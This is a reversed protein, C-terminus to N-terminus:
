PVKGVSAPRLVRQRDGSIGVGAGSSPTSGHAPLVPEIRTM